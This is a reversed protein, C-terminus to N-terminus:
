TTDCSRGASYEPGISLLNRAGKDKGRQRGQRCLGTYPSIVYLYARENVGDVSRSTLTSSQNTGKLAYLM